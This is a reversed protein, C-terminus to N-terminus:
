FPLSLKMIAYHGKLMEYNSDLELKKKIVNDIKECTEITKSAKNKAEEVIGSRKEKCKSCANELQSKEQQVKCAKEELLRIQTKIDKIEVDMAMIKDEGAIISEDFKIIKNKSAQLKSISDKHDVNLQQLTVNSIKGRDNLKALLTKVEEGLTVDNPLRKLLNKSFALQRLEDLLIEISESQIETAEVQTRCQSATPNTANEEHSSGANTYTKNNSSLINLHSENENEDEVSEIKVQPFGSEFKVAIKLEKKKESDLELESLVSELEGVSVLRVGCEEIGISGDVEGADNTVFFEFCIEPKYFRLISDCHFPDYWVYVHDSNLETVYTNLQSAKIGEEALNCQCKIRAEGKKVGNGCKGPQCADVSSYNYSHVAVRLRRVSVNQFVASMMTLKLSEMILNQSHKDLNLSNSFSIHKTKGMMKTALNKLSSVSVLSTCNIAILLTILPPLEPICELERCNVLSLIELEELKKISEPLRKMNSGDLNLEMLKSLVGVNDPLEFQNIVDKMHLIQLSRLGDFLEHLQQKNVILKSGSIKLEMISRASSLEKPLHKLRLSELNLRKLKHLRGTSLDLTQIGTSSLDLNEILDSSVAFEELNTCGDVSIKELFNLHKEGRVSRVKTCRDLILTVLTDTCLVSPHILDVLSECGSLNIWKLTSAKSLDPLLVFHKCESLDIGELKDLEQIGQWLQKINSHPMCIEVLFKAYFPQPLSEFPYGNWEFYRLKNKSFPELFEPLNLYTNTCSQNSPSYFKLIRLGKMKTFTDASLPFDNNQSLDLTIGEISSSGKNEEIVELAARGKLRTHTAPDTGCDNCIIDSGMKQLLDHMQITHDNSITILAKDKLIVIESSTSGKFACSDLIRAVCDKNEGIFFFAIDLFIKKQPEDLDDYSLKLVEHMAANSHTDLKSFASEWFEIERARLLLAFVKVALPVGGAYTIARQLLHEYNERLHSPVFAELCFLELCKSNEWEIVDYIWDVTGSLLQRDRTTIILRSDKHLEGYDTCLYKFQDLSDVNDVVILVKSSALRRMHFTSIAVDDSAPFEEKLLESLLKSPSYDKARAFCVHDYQAFYKAFLAKAITTKGMGGMGWIGVIQVNEVLSEVCECNKENRVFGELENPYRLRLKQLVDNVIKHIMNPEDKHTQTDWGSINAAETLAAKWKRVKNAEKTWLDREHKAFANKYSGTQKRIHSPDTKYFVPIVIQHSWEKKQMGVSQGTRGFVM